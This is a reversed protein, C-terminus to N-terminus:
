WRLELRVGNQRGNRSLSQARAQLQLGNTEDAFLKGPQDVLILLREGKAYAGRAHASVIQEADRLMELAERASAAVRDFRIVANDDGIEPSAYWTQTTM